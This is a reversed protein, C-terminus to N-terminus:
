SMEGSPRFDAVGIFASGTGAMLVLASRNTTEIAAAVARLIVLLGPPGIRARLIRGVALVECPARLDRAPSRFRGSAGSPAHLAGGSADGIQGLVQVAPHVAEGPRRIGVREEEGRVVAAALRNLEIGTLPPSIRTTALPSLSSSSM